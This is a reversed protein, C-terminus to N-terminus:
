EELKQKIKLLAIMENVQIWEDQLELYTKASLNKRTQKREITTQVDQLYYIVETLCTYM